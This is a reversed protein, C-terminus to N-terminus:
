QQFRAEAQSAPPPNTPNAAKNILDAIEGIEDDNLNEIFGAEALAAVASQACINRLAENWGDVCKQKDGKRPGTALCYACEVYHGGIVRWEIKLNESERCFPCLLLTKM